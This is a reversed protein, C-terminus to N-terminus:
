CNIDTMEKTPVFYCMNTEDSGRDWRGGIKLWSKNFNEKTLEHVCLNDIFSWCLFVRYGKDIHKFGNEIKNYGIMVDYYQLKRIRRSKLEIIIKNKTDIFDYQDYCNTTKNLTDSKFYQRFIELLKKENDSGFKLDQSKKSNM